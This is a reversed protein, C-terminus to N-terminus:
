SQGQMTVSGNDKGAVLPLKARSDEFDSSALLERLYVTERKANPLEIGIVSRGPVTAIRVSIASMSRAIDDSLGIVRSTKTGPAPELEYLTVVPGPRVKVIEGRVGFDELVGILLRANQQLSEENLAGADGAGVPTEELLELPPLQSDGKPRSLKLSRQRDSAKKGPTPKPKKTQVLDAKVPRPQADAELVPEIRDTPTSLKRGTATVLGGVTERLRAVHHKAGRAQGVLSFTRRAGSRWEAGSFGIVYLFIAASIVGSVLGIIAIEAAIGANQGAAVLSHLAWAGAYGGLGAALPWIEPTRLTALAIAASLLGIPLLTLRLWPHQLTHEKWLRWGWGVAVPALLVGSLGLTQLVIDSIHAGLYGLLNRAASGTATNLSPDTPHYSALAALLAVAVTILGLGCAELSKARLFQEAGAPLFATKKRTAM